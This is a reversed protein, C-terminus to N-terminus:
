EKQVLKTNGNTTRYTNLTDCYLCNYFIIEKRTHSYIQLREKNCEECLIKRAHQEM